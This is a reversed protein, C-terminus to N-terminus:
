LINIGESAISPFILASCEPGYTGLKEIESFEIGKKEM